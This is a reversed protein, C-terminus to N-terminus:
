DDMLVFVVLSDTGQTNVASVAMDM